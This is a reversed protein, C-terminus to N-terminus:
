LRRPNTYNQIGSCHCVTWSRCESNSSSSRLTNVVPGDVSAHQQAVDRECGVADCTPVCTVSKHAYRNDNM